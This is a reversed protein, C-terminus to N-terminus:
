CQQMRERHVACLRAVRQLEARRQLNGPGRLGAELLSPSQPPRPPHLSRGAQPTRKRPGAPAGVGTPRRGPLPLRAAPQSAQRAPCGLAPEAEMHAKPLLGPERQYFQRLKGAAEWEWVKALAKCAEATFKVFSACTKFGKKWKDM